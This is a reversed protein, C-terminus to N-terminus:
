PQWAKQSILDLYAIKRFAKVPLYVATQEATM